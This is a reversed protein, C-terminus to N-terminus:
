MSFSSEPELHFSYVPFIGSGRGPVTFVCAFVCMCRQGTLRKFVLHLVSFFTDREGDAELSECWFVSGPPFLPFSPPFVISLM